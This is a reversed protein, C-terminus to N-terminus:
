EIAEKILPADEVILKVPRNTPTHVVTEPDIGLLHYLTRGFSEIKYFKDVVQEGKKDTAGVVNYQVYGDDYEGAFSEGNQLHAVLRNDPTVYVFVYDSDHRHLQSSEGPELVMEWVRLAENEFLLATGINGTVAEM